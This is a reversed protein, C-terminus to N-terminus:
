RPDRAMFTLWPLSVQMGQIEVKHVKDYRLGDGDASLRRRPKRPDRKPRDETVRVPITGSTTKEIGSM